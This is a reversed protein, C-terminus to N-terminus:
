LTIITVQKAKSFCILILGIHLHFITIWQSFKSWIFKTAKISMTFFTKWMVHFVTYESTVCILHKVSLHLSLIPLTTTLKAMFLIQSTSTLEKTYIVSSTHTNSKIKHYAPVFSFSLFCNTWLYFDLFM